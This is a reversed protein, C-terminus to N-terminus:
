YAIPRAKPECGRSAEREDKSVRGLAFDRFRREYLEDCQKETLGDFGLGYQMVASDELTPQALGIRMRSIGAVYYGIADFHAVGLSAVACVGCLEPHSPIGGVSRLRVNWDVPAGCGAADAPQQGM